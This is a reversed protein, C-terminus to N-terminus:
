VWVVPAGLTIIEELPTTVVLPVKATPTYEVLPVDTSEYPSLPVQFKVRMTLEAARM